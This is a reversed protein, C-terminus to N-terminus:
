KGVEELIGKVGGCRGVILMGLPCSDLPLPASRGSCSDLSLYPLLSLYQSFLPPPEGSWNLWTRVSKVSLSVLYPPRPASFGEVKFNGETDSGRILRSEVSWHETLAQYLKLCLKYVQTSCCWSSM